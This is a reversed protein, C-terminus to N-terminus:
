IKVIKELIKRTTKVVDLNNAFTKLVKGKLLGELANLTIQM